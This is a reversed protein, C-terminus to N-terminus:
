TKRAFSITALGLFLVALLALVAIDPAVENLRGGRNITERLAHVAYSLPVFRTVPRLFAPMSEVPAFIGALFMNPFSVLFVAQVAQFESRALGSVLIGFGLAVVGVLTTTLLALLVSGRVEVGFVLTAVLLIACAQALSLLLFALTYGSVIEWRKAPSSMVRPLTGLTREKVLSVVTLLSGLQFIAFAVIGPVLFDLEGEDKQGYVAHEEIAFGPARSTQAHLADAVADGLAKLVAGTVISNTADEYVILLSTADQGSAAAESQATYNAPIVVGAVAEGSELAAQAEAASAVPVITITSRNLKEVIKGGLEGRDLDAIAVRAGTVQGGFAYGFIGIILIPQVIILALTRRDRRMQTLVRRAVVLARPM